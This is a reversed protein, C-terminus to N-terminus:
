EVAGARRLVAFFTRNDPEDHVDKLLAALGYLEGAHASALVATREDLVGAALDRAAAATDSWERLARGPLLRALASACQRFAQPHSAVATIAELGLEARRAWLTFRVAVVVEDVLELRQAGLAELSARVLGGSTNAIPLVALAAAGSALTALVEAPTSACLPHAELRARHAYIQAAHESFSGRAGLHVIGLSAM